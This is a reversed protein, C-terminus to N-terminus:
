DRRAPEAQALWITQLAQHVMGQRINEEANEVLDEFHGTYKRIDQFFVASGDDYRYIHCNWLTEPDADLGAQRVFDLHKPELDPLWDKM